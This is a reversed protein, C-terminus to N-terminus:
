RFDSLNTIRRILAMGRYHEGNVRSGVSVSWGKAPRGGAAHVASVPPEALNPEILSAEAQNVRRIEDGRDTHNRSFADFEATSM